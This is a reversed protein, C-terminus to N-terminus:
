ELVVNKLAALTRQHEKQDSVFQRYKSPTMSLYDEISCIKAKTSGITERYSSYPWEEPEEVLFDTVPNLHIYRILHALQENSEVPVHKFRSQWLPGKRRNLTNFYRTYSNLVNGMFISIGNERTQQLVMHLHTPMICYALIRVIHEKKSCYKCFFREKDELVMFASYRLNPNEIRYYKILSIIREFNNPNSFIKHGAISKTFVHYISNNNLPERKM